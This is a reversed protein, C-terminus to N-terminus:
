FLKKIMILILMVFGTSASPAVTVAKKIIDVTVVAYRVFFMSKRFWVKVLEVSREDLVEGNYREIETGVVEILNHVQFIYQILIGAVTIIIINLFLGM